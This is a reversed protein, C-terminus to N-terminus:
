VNGVIELIKKKTEESIETKASKASRNNRNQVSIKEMFADMQKSQTLGLHAMMDAIFQKPDKVFNEYSATYVDPHLKNIEYATTEMLKKYQFAVFLAPDNALEKAKIREQETYAGEWWLQGTMQNSWHIELWSRVTAVPERTIQVFQANPFVSLLYEMRAPGTLKFALRKRKQYKVMKAFHLRMQLREEETATENLLFGRSFDIRKGTISEWFDYREIPRFLVQNILSKNNQTNMGTIHWLGNDFARRLYNITASKPLLEQWNNHWALDEHHLIIDSIVTTGSRGTGFIIIPKELLKENKVLFDTM